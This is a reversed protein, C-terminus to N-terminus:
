PEIIIFKGKKMMKNQRKIEYRKTMLDLCPRCLMRGTFDCDGITYGEGTVYDVNVVDECRQCTDYELDYGDSSARFDCVGCRYEGKEIGDGESFMIRGKGKQFEADSLAYDCDICCHMEEEQYLEPHEKKFQRIVRKETQWMLEEIYETEAKEICDYSEEVYEEEWEEFTMQNCEYKKIQKETLTRCEQLIELKEARSKMEHEWMKKLLKQEEEYDNMEKETYYITKGDEMTFIWVDDVQRRDLANIWAQKPNMKTAQQNTSSCM